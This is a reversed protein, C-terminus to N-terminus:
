WGVPWGGPPPQLQSRFFELYKPDEDEFTERGKTLYVPVLWNAAEKRDGLEYLRQGIRMRFIPNDVDAGCRFAHQVAQCCGDWAELFFHCDAIDGLVQVALEDEGKPEPLMGWAAEFRALADQYQGADVFTEGEALLQEVKKSAKAM